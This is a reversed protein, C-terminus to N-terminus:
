GNKVTVARKYEIYYHKKGTKDKRTFVNFDKNQDIKMDTECNYHWVAKRLAWSIIQAKYNESYEDVTIECFPINERIIRMADFVVAEKARRYKEVGDFGDPIKDIAKIVNEGGVILYLKGSRCVHYLFTNRNFM